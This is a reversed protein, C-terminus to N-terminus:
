TSKGAVMLLAVAVNDKKPNDSRFGALLTAVDLGDGVLRGRLGLAGLCTHWNDRAGVGTYHDSQNELPRQLLSLHQWPNGTTAPYARVRTAQTFAL